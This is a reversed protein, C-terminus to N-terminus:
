YSLDAEVSTCLEYKQSNMNYFLVSLLPKDYFIRVRIYQEEPTNRLMKMCKHQASNSFPNILNEGDNLFLTIPNAIEGKNIESRLITNLYVGM